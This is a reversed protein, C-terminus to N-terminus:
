LIFSSLVLSLLVLTVHWGFGSSGHGVKSESVGVLSHFGDTNVCFLVLFNVFLVCAYVGPAM